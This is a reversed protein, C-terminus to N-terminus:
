KGIIFNTKENNIYKIIRINKGTKNKYFYKKTSSGEYDECNNMCSFLLVNSVVGIILYHM